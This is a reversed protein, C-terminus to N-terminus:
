STGAGGEYTVRISTPYGLDITSPSAGFYTIQPTSSLVSITGSLENAVWVMASGPAISSEATVVGFADPVEGVPVEVASAVSAAVSSGDLVTVTGQKGPLLGTSEIYMDKRSPEYVEGLVRHSGGLSLPGGDVVLSAGDVLTVGDGAAYVQGDAPDYALGTLNAGASIGPAVVVGSLSTLVRVTSSSNLVFTEGDVPDVAIGQTSGTPLLLGTPIEVNLTTLNVADVLRNN